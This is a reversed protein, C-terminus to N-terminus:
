KILEKVIDRVVDVSEELEDAIQEVRKNKELKKKVLQM